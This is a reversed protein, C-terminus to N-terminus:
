QKLEEILEEVYGVLFYPQRSVALGVDVEPFINRLSEM